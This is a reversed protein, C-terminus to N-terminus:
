NKSKEIFDKIKNKFYHNDEECYSIFGLDKLKKQEDDTLTNNTFSTGSYYKKRIKEYVQKILDKNKELYDMDGLTDLFSKSLKNKNGVEFITSKCNENCLRRIFEDVLYNVSGDFSEKNNYWNNLSKIIKEYAAKDKKDRITIKEKKNIKDIMTKFQKLNNKYYDKEYKIAFSKIKKEFKKICEKSKDDTIYKKYLLFGSM